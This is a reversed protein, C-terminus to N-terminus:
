LALLAKSELDQITNMMSDIEAEKEREREEYM